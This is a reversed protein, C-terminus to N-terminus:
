TVTVTAPYPKGSMPDECKVPVIEVRLDNAETRAHFSRTGTRTDLLARAAPTVASGQGYDYTFRMESGMRIELQWGPEQGIARFDRDRALEFFVGDWPAIARDRDLEILTGGLAAWSSGDCSVRMIRLQERRAVPKLSDPAIRYESGLFEQARETRGAYQPAECRQGNSAAIRRTLRLSEGHRAKAQDESLAAVGPMSHGVVTWIGMLSPSETAAAPQIGQAPAAAPAPAAAFLLPEDRGAAYIRLTKDNAEFRVADRLAALYAEEQRMVAEACAKRTTALGSFKIGDDAVIVIGNFRNCSGNGGARGETPFELSPQTGAQLKASGLSELRWATGVLNTAAPVTDGSDPTEPAAARPAVAAPERSGVRDPDVYPAPTFLIEVPEGPGNIRIRFADESLALVDVPYNRSEETITLRGGESRWQGFAPTSNPSAMVLTGDSLFVRLAGREVQKSESVVWVRNVFSAPAKAPVPEAPAQAPAPPAPTVPPPPESRECAALTWSLVAILAVLRAKM